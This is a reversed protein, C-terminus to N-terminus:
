HDTDKGPLTRAQADRALIDEPTRQDSGSGRETGCVRPALLIPPQRTAKVPVKGDARRRVSSVGKPTSPEGTDKGTRHKGCEHVSLKYCNTPACFYSSVHLLTVTGWASSEALYSFCTLNNRERVLIYKEM